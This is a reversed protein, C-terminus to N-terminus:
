LRISFTYPHPVDFILIHGELREYLVVVILVLVVVVVVVIVVIEVVVVVLKLTGILYIVCGTCAM